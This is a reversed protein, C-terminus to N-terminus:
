KSKFNKYLLDGDPCCDTCDSPYLGQKGNNVCSSCKNDDSDDEAIKWYQEYTLTHNKCKEFQEDTLKKLPYSYGKSVNENFGVAHGTELLVWSTVNQHTGFEQWSLWPKDFSMSFEKIIQSDLLNKMLKRENDSMDFSSRIWSALTNQYEIDKQTSRL